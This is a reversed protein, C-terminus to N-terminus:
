RQDSPLATGGSGMSATWGAGGNVSKFLTTGAFTSVTAYAVNLDTPDWAIWSVYGTSPRTNLWTTTSVTTLGSTTYLLYGDSMGVIVRNGDLPHAALASVSGNGPMIASARVWSTAQNITRWIYFGGTWLQQRAGQNMTFPAIFAFGTDGSIGTVANAFSAGGNVSRQISLGTNEAFLVDNAANVDGLTDVAAYGGDGGILSTWLQSGSTGRQTGNDQLGGFYTQGNPYPVGAYFQTTVYGNNRDVWAGGGVVPTGCIQTLTTNVAARANDIRDVGGDSTAFM